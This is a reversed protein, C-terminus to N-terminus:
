MARDQWLSCNLEFVSGRVQDSVSTGTVKCVGLNRTQVGPQPDCRIGIEGAKVALMICVEQSISLLLLSFLIIFVM